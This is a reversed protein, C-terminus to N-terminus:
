CARNENGNISFLLGGYDVWIGGAKRGCIAQSLKSDERGVLVIRRIEGHALVFLGDRTGIWLSGSQDVFLCLCNLDAFPRFEVGDFRVLGNRTAIWIYGDPTQALAKIKDAPLGNATTWHLVRYKRPIEFPSAITRNEAVAASSHFLILHGAFLM